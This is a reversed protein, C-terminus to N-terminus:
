CGNKLLSLYVEVVLRDRENKGRPIILDVVWGLQKLELLEPTESVVEGPDLFITIM